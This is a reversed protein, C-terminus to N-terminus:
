RRFDKQDQVKDIFLVIRLFLRGQAVLDGVDIVEGASPIAIPPGPQAQGTRQQLVAGAGDM